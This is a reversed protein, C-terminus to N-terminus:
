TRGRSYISIRAIVNSTECFSKMGFDWLRNPVNRKIKTRYWWRKAERLAAEGTNKNERNLDYM